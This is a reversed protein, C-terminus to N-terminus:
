EYVRLFLGADAEEATMGHEQAKERVEGLAAERQEDTALALVKARFARGLEKIPKITEEYKRELHHRWPRVPQDRMHWGLLNLQVRNRRVRRNWDDTMVVKAQRRYDELLERGRASQQEDFKFFYKVGALFAAWQAPGIQELQWNAFREANELAPNRKEETDKGGGLESELDEFPSEREEV